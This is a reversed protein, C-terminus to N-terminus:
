TIFVKMDFSIAFRCNYLFALSIVIFWFSVLIVAISSSQYPSFLSPEIVLRQKPPFLQREKRKEPLVGSSRFRSSPPFRAYLIFRRELSSSFRQYIIHYICRYLGNEVYLHAKYVELSNRGFNQQM